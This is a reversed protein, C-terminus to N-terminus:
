TRVFPEILEFALGSLAVVSGIWLGVRVGKGPRCTACAAGGSCTPKRLYALHFGLGLLAITAILFYWKYPALSDLWAALGGAVGLAILIAPLLCCAACVGLAAVNGGLTTWRAAKRAGGCRSAQAAATEVHVVLDRSM